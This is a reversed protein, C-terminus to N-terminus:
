GMAPSQHSEQLQFWLPFSKKFSFWSGQNFESINESERARGSSVTRDLQRLIRGFSTLARRNTWVLASDRAMAVPTHHNNINLLLCPQMCAHLSLFDGKCRSQLNEHLVWSKPLPPPTFIPSMSLAGATIKRWLRGPTTQSHLKQWIHMHLEAIERQRHLQDADAQVAVKRILM